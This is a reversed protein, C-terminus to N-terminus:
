MGGFFTAPRFPDLLTLVCSIKFDEKEKILQYQNSVSQM